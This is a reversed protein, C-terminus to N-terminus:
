AYDPEAAFDRDVVATRSVTRVWERAMSLAHEPVMADLEPALAADYQLEPADPHSFKGGGGGGRMLALVHRAGTMGLEEFQGRLVVTRSKKALVFSARYQCGRPNSPLTEEVLMYLARVGGISVADVELLVGTEDHRSEGHRRALERRLTGLDDLWLPTAPLAEHVTLVVVALNRPNFWRGEGSSEFGTTDFTVLAPGPGRGAGTAGRFSPTM